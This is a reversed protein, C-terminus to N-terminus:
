YSWWNWGTCAQWFSTGAHGVVCIWTAEIQPLYQIGHMSWPLFVPHHMFHCMKNLHFSRCLLTDFDLETFPNVWQLALQRVVLETLTWTSLQWVGSKTLHSALTQWVWQQKGVFLFRPDWPIWYLYHTKYCACLIRSLTVWDLEQLCCTMILCDTDFFVRPKRSPCHYSVLVTFLLVHLFYFPSLWVMQLSSSTALWNTWTTKRFHLLFLFPYEASWHLRGRCLSSSYHM